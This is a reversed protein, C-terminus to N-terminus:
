LVVLFSFDNQSVTVSIILLYNVTDLTCNLNKYMIVM